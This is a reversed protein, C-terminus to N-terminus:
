STCLKRLFLSFFCPLRGAEQAQVHDLVALFDQSRVLRNDLDVDRTHQSARGGEPSGFQGISEDIDEVVGLHLVVIAHFIVGQVTQAFHQLQCCAITRLHQAPFPQFFHGRRQGIENMALDLNRGDRRQLFDIAHAHQAPLRNAGQGLGPNGRQRVLDNGSEREEANDGSLVQRRGSRM